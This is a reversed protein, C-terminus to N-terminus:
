KTFKFTSLIQQEENSVNIDGYFILHYIDGNHRAGFEVLPDDGRDYGATLVAKYGSVGGLKIDKSIVKADLFTILSVDATPDTDEYLRVEFYKYKGPLLKGGSKDTSKGFGTLRNLKDQDNLEISPKADSPYKISFGLSSNNYTEWGITEAKPTPQQVIQEFKKVIANSFTFYGIVIVLVVIIIAM